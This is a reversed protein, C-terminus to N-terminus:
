SKPTPKTPASLLWVSHCYLRLNCVAATLRNGDAQQGSPLPLIPLALWLRHPQTPTPKGPQKATKGRSPKENRNKTYNVPRTVPKSKNNASAVMTVAEALTEPWIWSQGLLWHNPYKSFPLLSQSFIKCFGFWARYNVWLTKQVTNLKITSWVSKSGLCKSTKKCERDRLFYIKPLLLHQM